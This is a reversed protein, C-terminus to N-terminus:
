ENQRGRNYSRLISNSNRAGSAFPPTMECACRFRASCAWKSTHGAATVRMALNWALHLGVDVPAIAVAAGALALLAPYPLRLGRAIALLLVAIALMVLITAFVIM